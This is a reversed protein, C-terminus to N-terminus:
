YNSTGVGEEPNIEEQIPGGKKEEIFKQGLLIEVEKSVENFEPPFKSIVEKREEIPIEMIRRTIGDIEKKIKLALGKKEKEDKVLGIEKKWGLVKSSVEEQLSSGEEARRGYSRRRM